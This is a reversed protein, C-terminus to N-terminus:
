DFSDKGVLRIYTERSEKFLPLAEIRKKIMKESRDDPEPSHNFTLQRLYLRYAALLMCDWAEPEISVNYARSFEIQRFLKDLDHWGYDNYPYSSDKYEKILENRVHNASDKDLRLMLTYDLIDPYFGSEQRVFLSTFLSRDVNLNSPLVAQDPVPKFSPAEDTTTLSLRDFRDVAFPLPNGGEGSFGALIGITAINRLFDERERNTFRALHERGRTDFATSIMQKYEIYDFNIRANGPPFVGAGEILAAAEKLTAALTAFDRTSADFSGLAAHLRNFSNEVEQVLQENIPLRPQPPRTTGRTLPQDGGSSYRHKSGVPPAFSLRSYPGLIGAGCSSDNDDTEINARAILYPDYNTFRGKNWSYRDLFGQVLSHPDYLNAEWAQLPKDLDDFLFLTRTNENYIGLEHHGIAKEPSYTAVVFREGPALLLDKHLSAMALLYKTRAQCSQGGKEYMLSTIIHAGPDPVSKSYVYAKLWKLKDVRSISKDAAISTFFGDDRSFIDLLEKLKLPPMLYTEKELHQAYYESSIFFTGWDINSTGIDKFQQTYDTAAALHDGLGKQFFAKDGDGDGGALPNKEISPMDVLLETSYAIDPRPLFRVKEQHDAIHLLLVFAGALLSSFAFSGMFVRNEGLVCDRLAQRVTPKFPHMRMRVAPNLEKTRFRVPQM